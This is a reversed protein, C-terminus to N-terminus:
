HVVLTYVAELNCTGWEERGAVAVELASAVNDLRRVPSAAPSDRVVRASSAGQLAGEAVM